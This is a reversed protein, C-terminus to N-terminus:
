CGWYIELGCLSTGGNENGRSQRAQNPVIENLCNEADECNLTVDLSSM